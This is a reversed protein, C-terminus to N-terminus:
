SRVNPNSRSRLFFQELKAVEQLESDALKNFQPVSTAAQWLLVVHDFRKAEASGGNKLVTPRLINWTDRMDSVTAQFKDSKRSEAWIKMQRGDYDLRTVEVPVQPTFPESLEGSIMVIENANLMGQERNQSHVAANLARVKEDLAKATQLARQDASKGGVLGRSAQAAANLQSLKNEAETWKNAQADDYIRDGLEGLDTIAWPVDGGGAPPPGPPNNTVTPAQAAAANKSPGNAKKCGALASLAVLVACAFAAGSYRSTRFPGLNTQRGKNM